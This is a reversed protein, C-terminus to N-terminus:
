CSSVKSAHGKPKALSQRSTRPRRSARAVEIRNYAEHESLRLGKICYEFTSTYALPLYLRRKDFEALLAVLHATARREDSAAQHVEAVLANDSLHTYTMIQKM